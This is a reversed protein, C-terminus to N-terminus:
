VRSVVFSDNLDRIQRSESARRREVIANVETFTPPDSHYM